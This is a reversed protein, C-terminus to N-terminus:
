SKCFIVLVKAPKESLSRGMHPQDSDFYLADGSKLQQTQGDYYFEIVGELIYNFEQGSHIMPMPPFEHSVTVCYSDMIRNKKNFAFSEYISNPSADLHAITVRNEVRSVAMKSSNEQSAEGSILALATEGLGFAIKTLTGIPPVKEGNEIQSLHGKSLGTVKALVELTWGKQKRKERIRRAIALELSRRELDSDKMFLTQWQFVKRDFM